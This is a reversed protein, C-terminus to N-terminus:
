SVPKDIRVTVINQLIFVVAPYGVPWFVGNIHKMCEEADGAQRHQAVLAQLLDVRGEGQGSVNHLPYLLSPQM